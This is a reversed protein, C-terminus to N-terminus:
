TRKRFRAAWSRVTSAANDKITELLNMTQAGAAKARYSLTFKRYASDTGFIEARKRIYLAPDADELAKLDLLSSQDRYPLPFYFRVIFLFGFLFTLGVFALIWSSWRGLTPHQYIDIVLLISVIFSLGFTAIALLIAALSIAVFLGRNAITPFIWDDHARPVYVKIGFFTPAALKGFSRLPEDATLEALRELVALSTDRSVTITWTALAVLAYLLLLVEKVGTANKLTVGFLSLSADSSIFGLVQFAFLAFQLVLLKILGEDLQKAQAGLRSCYDQSFFSEGQEIAFARDLDRQIRQKYTLWVLPFVVPKIKDFQEPTM